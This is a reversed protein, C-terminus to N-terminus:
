EGHTARLSTFMRELRPMWDEGLSLWIFEARGMLDTRPVFGWQPWEWYRADRSNDRNDGVMVFMDPPVVMEAVDQGPTEPDVMVVHKVDGLTETKQHALVSRGDRTTYAYDQIAEQKQEVGNVYLIKDRYAVTDGPLGVLRKIFLTEGLGFFSGPLGSGTKKFVIIDGREPERTWLMHDTLPIRNGYAFKSVFLFDGILLNPMMSGSPIKFPEFLFGRICFFALFAALVLTKTMEWLRALFPKM